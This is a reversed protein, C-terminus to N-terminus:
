HQVHMINDQDQDLGEGKYDFAAPPNNEAKRWEGNFQSFPAQM